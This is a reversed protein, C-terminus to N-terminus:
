DNTEKKGIYFENELLKIKRIQNNIITDKYIDILKELDIYYQSNGM